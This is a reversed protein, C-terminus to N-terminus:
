PKTCEYHIPWIAVYGVILVVSRLDKPDGAPVKNKMMCPHCMRQHCRVCLIPGMKPTTARAIILPNVHCCLPAVISMKKGEEAVYDM